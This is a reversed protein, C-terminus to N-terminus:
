VPLEYKVDFLPSLVHLRPHYFAYGETVFRAVERASLFRGDLRNEAYFRPKLPQAGLRIAFPPAQRGRQTDPLAFIQMARFCYARPLLSM